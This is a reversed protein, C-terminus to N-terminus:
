NEEVEPMTKKVLGLKVGTSKLFVVDSMFFLLAFVNVGLLVLFM